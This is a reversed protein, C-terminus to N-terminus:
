YAQFDPSICAPLRQWVLMRNNGPMSIDEVLGLGGASALAQLWQVDRVGSQADRHRLVADFDRNSQSSHEGAYMFPGYIFLRADPQMLSAIRAFCAEVAATTMIHLTNASYVADFRQEPWDTARSVDLPIPDILNALAAEKIWMRMGAHQEIMDSTQWQIGPLAAAFMVAHQGSGSGIELLSGKAPLRAKLEALISPGNRVCAESYPKDNMRMM